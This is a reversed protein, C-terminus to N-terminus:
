VLKFFRSGLYRSVFASLPLSVLQKTEAPIKCNQCYTIRKINQVPRGALGYLDGLELGEAMPLAAGWWSLSGLAGDLRAKLAQLPPTVM